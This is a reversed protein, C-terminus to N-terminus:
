SSPLPLTITEQSVKREKYRHAITTSLDQKWKLSETNEELLGSLTLPFFGLQSLFSPDPKLSDYIVHNSVLKVTVDAEDTHDTHDTHDSPTFLILDMDNNEASTVITVLMSSLQYNLERVQM